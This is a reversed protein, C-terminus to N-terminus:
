ARIRAVFQRAGQMEAHPGWAREEFAGGVRFRELWDRARDDGVYPPGGESPFIGVVLNAVDSGEALYVLAVIVGDPTVIRCAVDEPESTREVKWGEPLPAPLHHRLDIEGSAEGELKGGSAEVRLPPREERIAGWTDPSAPLARAAFCRAFPIGETLADSRDDNMEVFAECARFRRLIREVLKDPAKKRDRPAITVILHPHEDDAFLALMVLARDSEMIFCNPREVSREPMSWGEPPTKPLHNRADLVTV